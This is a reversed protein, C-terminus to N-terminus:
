SSVTTSCTVTYLIVVTRAPTNSDQYQYTSVTMAFSLAAGNWLKMESEGKEIWFRRDMQDLVMPDM